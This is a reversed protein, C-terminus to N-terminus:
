APSPREQVLRPHIVPLTTLSLLAAGLFMAPAGAADAMAGGTAPGLVSGGAAAILAATFSRAPMQPFLRESWFALVGSMMMVYAGQLGASLLVGPWSTPVLAILGFSLASATLLARLLASLGIRGKIRGTALGILGVTGFCLFLVAPSAGSPLLPLGGSQAVRDAAFSFYIATTTGFSLAIAYLPMAKPHLLTGWPQRPWSAGLPDAPASLAAVNGLGAIAAAIAFAAWAAQWPLGTLNTALATAGAAAIGLGTGTSIIALASPRTDDPLRRGVINNFPSWAFCTMRPSSPSTEAMAGPPTTSSVAVMLGRSARSIPAAISPEPTSSISLGTEPPKEPACPPVSVIIAAPSPAASSAARGAISATQAMMWRTPERAPSPCVTM